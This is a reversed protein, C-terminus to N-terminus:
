QMHVFLLQFIEPNTCIYKQEGLIVFFFAFVYSYDLFPLVLAVFFFLMPWYMNLHNENDLLLFYIRFWEIFSALVKFHVNYLCIYLGGRASRHPCRKQTILKGFRKM